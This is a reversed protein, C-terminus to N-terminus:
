KWQMKKLKNVANELSETPELINYQGWFNGDYFDFIKDSLIHDERFSERYPISVGPYDKRDTIVVESCVTYNTSFFKKKWDCRFKIENRIYNLYSKGEQTKYTVLYTVSHPSFILGTPKKRLIQRTVKEKHRMDTNFEAM